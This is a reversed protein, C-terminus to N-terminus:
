RCALQLESAAAAESAAPKLLVVVYAEPSLYQQALERIQAPTLAQLLELYEQLRQVGVLTEYYGYLSALQSPSEASFLLEHALLRRARELEKQGIGDQQVKEIEHLITAEVRELNEADLQASICFHGGEKLVLSSCSIARVWGRQERLLHVLRSTRGDGLVAALLELGCVQEWNDLGVTPWALKLRAQELRSHSGERRRIGQPRPQPPVPSGIWAPGSAASGFEKEVWALAREADIGGTVVVTMSEPRYWGRHYDRLLDPTLRMLSAPTGLVPRGYPHEEGYVTEMLLQHAAYGLNDAARRIEELVVQREREFEEPPICARLIAEALYPLTEELDAAAVTLYYHTYDHSTAANAIGGRGEIARDLEGPALRESGKFVMHELFHSIGLWQPPENRGGTPIWVDVTASEAIPIPHLIVGLGNSLRQTYAPM